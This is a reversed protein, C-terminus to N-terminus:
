TVKNILHKVMRKQVHRCCKLKEISMETDIPPEAEFVKKYSKLDRDGLYEIYNLVYQYQSRRFIKLIGGSQM